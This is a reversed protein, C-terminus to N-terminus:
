PGAEVAVSAAIKPAAPKNLASSLRSAADWFRHGDPAISAIEIAPLVFRGLNLERVSAVIRQQEHLNASDFAVIDRHLQRAISPMVIEARGIMVRVIADPRPVIDLPLMRDTWAAPLVYLVRTGEEEFWQDKWTEVMALAEKPFLGQSILTAVMEKMVRAQVNVVADFPEVDLQVVRDAGPALSGLEHFRMMGKRITLVFAAPVPEDSSLALSSDDASVKVELPAAQYGIGRYFLDREYEAKSRAHPSQTRLLNADTARAAYYHRAHADERDRILKDAGIETSAPGLIRVGKWEIISRRDYRTRGGVAMSHPGISDAQPYWETIRGTPFSVRVDVDLERDSYFYIVPTEMRLVGVTQDKRTQDVLVVNAFGGNRTASSYVFDPLDAAILPKWHRQVGDAGQVSTFTGWEHVILRETGHAPPVASLLACALFRRIDM